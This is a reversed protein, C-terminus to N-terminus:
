LEDTAAAGRRAAVCGPDRSGPGALPSGALVLQIPPTLRLKTLDVAFLLRSVPDPVSRGLQASDLALRRVPSAAVAQLLPLAGVPWRAVVVGGDDHSGCWSFTAEVIDVGEASDSGSDMHPRDYSIHLGEPLELENAGRTPHPLLSANTLDQDFKELHRLFVDTTARLADDSIGGLMAVQSPAELLVRQILSELTSRAIEMSSVTSSNDADSHGGCAHDSGLGQMHRVWGFPLSKRFPVGDTKHDVIRMLAQRFRHLDWGAASIVDHVVAQSAAHFVAFAYSFSQSLVGITLHLSSVNSSEPTSAVHLSGRPVYAMMGPELRFDLSPPPLAELPAAEGSLLSVTHKFPSLVPDLGIESPLQLGDLDWVKWSKQGVIQIALVDQRDNHLSLAQSGPPTLYLNIENSIGFSRAFDRSWAALRPLRAEVASLACTANLFFDAIAGRRRQPQPSVSATRGSPATGGVVQLQVKSDRLLEALDALDFMDTALENGQKFIVAKRSWFDAAFTQGCLTGFGYPTASAGVVCAGGIFITLAVRVCVLPAMAELSIHCNVHYLAGGIHCFL